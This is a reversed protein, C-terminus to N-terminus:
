KIVTETSNTAETVKGILWAPYNTCLAKFKLANALYMEIAEPSYVANGDGAKKDINYVSLQVGAAEFEELTRQGKGGFAPSMVNSASFNAWPYGKKVFVSAEQSGMWGIPIGAAFAYGYASTMVTGNGTCIFEVFHKAGMEEVIECSKRVANIPYQTLTSPNTINKIDLWLKTCSGDKMVETLFDALSPIQEGNSLAGAARIQALTAEWPYFGNIKGNGDAHAVVVNDDKTWYIDCESAYCGQQMAYQLSAISNDPLNCEASGGRHAVIHNTPEVPKKLGDDVPKSSDPIEDWNPQAPWEEKQCSSFLAM